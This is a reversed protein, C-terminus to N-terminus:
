APYMARLALVEGAGLDRKKVEDPAAGPHMTLEAAAAVEVHYLDLVHGIEHTAVNQLDLAGCNHLPCTLDTSWSTNSNFAIDFELLTSRRSTLNSVFAAGGASAAFYVTNLGDRQAGTATTLGMFVFAVSSRDGPYAAEVAPSKVENQWALFADQLDEVAGAPAGAPNVYFPIPMSPWTRGRTRWDTCLDTPPMSCASGTPKGANAPVAGSVLVATTLSLAVLLAALSRSRM